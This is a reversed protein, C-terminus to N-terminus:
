SRRPYSSSFPRSCDSSRAGWSPHGNKDILKDIVLVVLPPIVAFVYTIRGSGAEQLAFSSFGYVLGGLWAAPLWRVWRRLLIFMSAASLAFSLTLLVAMTHVVGITQTLPAALSGLALVSTNWMVNIGNPADLYNTVLM